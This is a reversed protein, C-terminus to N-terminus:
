AEIVRAVKGLVGNIFRGSAETSLEAAMDVAENIAM